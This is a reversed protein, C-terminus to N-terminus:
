GKSYFMDICRIISECYEQAKIIDEKSLFERNNHAIPNRVEALFNFKVAWDKKNGEFVTGFWIWDKAMFLDYMDRPFTYDILNKSSFTYKQSRKRTDQLKQFQTNWNEKDGYKAQIETEWDESFNEKIYFNLLSRIKKETESWLPWYDPSFAETELIKTFFSSFCIYTMGKLTDPSGGNYSVGCMRGLVNLKEECSVLKIFDYKLLKELDIAKVDYAPGFILQQAKDFLNEQNLTNKMGKFAELLFHQEKQIQASLEESNYLSKRFCYDNFMDLLYPHRGVFYEAVNKFNDSINPLHSWYESMDEEDFMGIRIDSFTGHFNSIAGNVAEIEEITKRSCTVLCVKKDIEYSLGRLLQFDAVSFYTQVSDFEDLIYIVKYGFRKVTKLYKQVLLSFELSDNELKINSYIENLRKIKQEDLSVFEMEDQLLLIMQRFFAYSDTCSGTQFFLPITNQEILSEKKDMISKWALSSKGIRPLGMIALNGYSKGLVRQEIQQLYFKRGIFRDGNVIGGFDAFPNNLSDIAM